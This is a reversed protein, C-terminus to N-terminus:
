LEENLLGLISEYVTTEKWYTLDFEWSNNDQICEYIKSGKSVIDGVYYEQGQVWAPAIATADAGGGGGGSNKIQERTVFPLGM